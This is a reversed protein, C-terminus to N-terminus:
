GIGPLEADPQMGPLPPPSASDPIYDDTGDEGSLHALSSASGDWGISRMWKLAITVAEARSGAEFAHIGEKFHVVFRRPENSARLAKRAVELALRADIECYFAAEARGDHTGPPIKAVEAV